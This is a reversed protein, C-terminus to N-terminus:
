ADRRCRDVLNCLIKASFTERRRLRWTRKETKPRRSRTQTLAVLLRAWCNVLSPFYRRPRPPSPVSGPRKQSAFPCIGAAEVRRVPEGEVAAVAEVDRIHHVAPDLLERGASFNRHFLNVIAQLGRQINASVGHLRPLNVRRRM